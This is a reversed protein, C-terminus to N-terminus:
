SLAGLQLENAWVHFDERANEFRIDSAQEQLFMVEQDTLEDDDPYSESIALEAEQLSLLHGVAGDLTGHFPRLALGEQVVVFDGSRMKRVYRDQM